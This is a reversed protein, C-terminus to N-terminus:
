FRLCVRKGHCWRRDCVRCRAGNLVVVVVVRSSRVARARQSHNYCRVCPCSGCRVKHLTSSTEDVLALLASSVATEVRMRVYRSRRPANTTGGGYMGHLVHVLYIREIKGVCKQLRDV